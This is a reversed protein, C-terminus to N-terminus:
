DVPVNEKLYNAIQEAAQNHGYCTWHSDHEFSWSKDNDSNLVIFKFGAEKCLNIIELESKPHFVIIKNKINYNKNIYELLSIIENKYNFSGIDKTKEISKNKKNERSFNLPFRNYFYYLLKWSYLIKKLGPSKMQGFVIKEKEVNLQTIDAAPSISSISEYFDNNNVYILETKPNLSDFQKSIEMAEIFSVGSRGAEIFNYNKLREKLLFSQHCENPNMFNEIYSDGLITILNTYSKPLEGPWGLKNVVWKHGGGKWYGNQNPYYKQIGYEDITRQPLDTVAHTFRIILEGILITFLFFFFLNKIFKKM